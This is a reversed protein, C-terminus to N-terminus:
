YRLSSSDVQVAINGNMVGGMQQMSQGGGMPFGMGAGAHPVTMIQLQPMPGFNGRSPM